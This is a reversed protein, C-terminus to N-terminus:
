KINDNASIIVYQVNKIDENADKEELDEAVIWLNYTDAGQLEEYPNDEGTATFVEEDVLEYTDNDVYLLIATDEGIVFYKTADSAVILENADEEYSTLTTKFLEGDAYAAAIDADTVTGDDKLAVVQGILNATEDMDDALEVGTTVEATAPNLISVVVVTEDLDEDYKAEQAVIIRYDETTSVGFDDIKAYLFGLYEVSSATNNAFIAKVNEFTTSTFKPLTDVTYETYEAEGTKENTTEIVIISDETVTFRTFDEMGSITYTNKNFNAIAHTGAAYYTYAGAVEEDTFDASAIDALELAKFTYVGADTATYTVIKGAFEAELVAEMKTEDTVKLSAPKGKGNSVLSGEEFVYNTYINDALKVTKEAGNIIAKVYLSEQLEGDKVGTLAKYVVGEVDGGFAPLIIAYNADADFENVGATAAELIIGGYIYAEITQGVTYSDISIGSALVSKKDMDKFNIVDGTSLTIKGGNTTVKGIIKAEVPEVVAAVEVYDAAENVYALVTDGYEFEGVVTAEQVYMEDDGANFLSFKQSKKTAEKIEVVENYEKVFIYDAYGNGDVDYVDAAYLGGYYVVPLVTAFSNTLADPDAKDYNAIEVTKDTFAFKAGDESWGGATLDIFKLAEADDVDKEVSAPATDGFYTKIGDFEVLGTMVKELKKNEDVYYEKDTKASRAIVVDDATVTKKVLASQAAIIEDKTADTGDKKVFLTIDALFYDDSSGELGLEELTYARTEVVEDKANLRSGYVQDEDDNAGVSYTADGYQYNATSVVKLTEKEVGFIKGCVTAPVEKEYWQDVSGPIKAWETTKENMEAYFANALVIAVNGRTLPTTYDIDSPLDEDLGIDEAVDIYGFPYPLAEDKEYGLARVLMVYADQLTINGTPNFTTASTGKIIDQQAAWTIMYYFTPDALDVFGSNNTGGEVSKGAKMLRYIFAAMQQRNVEADPSFTTESTGKAVGLTSLLEVADALALNEVDVDEFAASTSMAFTSVMMLVALVLTLFKTTKRM